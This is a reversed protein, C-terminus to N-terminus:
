FETINELSKLSCSVCLYYISILLFNQCLKPPENRHSAPMRVGDGLFSLLMEMEMRFMHQQEGPTSPCLLQWSGPQAMCTVVEAPALSAELRAPVVKEM